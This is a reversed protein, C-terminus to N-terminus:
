GSAPEMVFRDSTCTRTRDARVILCEAGVSAALDVLDATDAVMAITALVDAVAADPAVITASAIGDAPQGSRPDLVKPYRVGSITWWRRAAGSTAVAENRIEVTAMPAVNDYPRHPDEIGVTVSGGGRHVMDGGLSLWLSDIATDADNVTEISRQAIWGKALANLNDIPKDARAHLAVTLDTTSPPTGRTEARDWVEVLTQVRPDFMGHSKDSWHRAVDILEVLEPVSTSGTVRYQQLASTPDFVTFIQELRAVEELVALEASDAVRQDRAFVRIEARTGLLPEVIRM